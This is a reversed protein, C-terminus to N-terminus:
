TEKRADTNDTQGQLDQAGLSKLQDGYMTVWRQFEADDKLFPAAQILTGYLLVQPAYDTWFNQQNEDSLLPLLQWYLVEFPYSAVPTPVIIWHQYDYDGYFLPVDREDRNPWYMNCYEYSRPYLPTRNQLPPTGVGFNFSCTERWRDPKAYVATGAVMTSTVVNKNGLIKLKTALDRETLNILSPLQNYVESDEVTGRELYRRMDTLLSDFTMATAPV